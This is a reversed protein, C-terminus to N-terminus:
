FTQTYRAYVIRGFGNYLNFDYDRSTIFGQGIPPMKEGVNQAGVAFVGQWPTHYSFQVDHTVWTPAASDLSDAQQQDIANILHNIQWNGHTYNNNMTARAKPLGPNSILNRGKDVSTKHIYSTQLQHSFDGGFLGYKFKMSVDAGLVDLRGSNGFGVLCRIIQGTPARLCGLGPINPEGSIGANIIDQSTFARIRNTVALDYVDLNFEFWEKLHFTTGLYAHTSEESTLEPNAFSVQEFPASCGPDLGQYICSQPDRAFLTTTTPQQSILDMSPPRSNESYGMRFSLNQLPQYRLSLHSNIDDGHISYDDYRAALRLDLQNFLPVLTEFYVANVTRASGASNGASGLVQGAESQPDYQDLYKEKRYEAGIVTSIRGAPLDAWDFSAGMFYENIDFKSERYLTIRLANLVAESVAYPNALNYDGSEILQEAASRIVYNRGVDASRNDLHRVGYQWDVGSWHGDLMLTFDLQQNKVTTERNGLADFRHWWNVPQPSLGLSADYLPSNPNTPNNPSNASIPSGSVSNGPVPAYQGFSETQRFAVQTSLQWVDTIQHSAKAFLSKNEISAEDAAQSDFDYGCIQGSYSLNFGTEPFECGGPIATLDFNDFGGSLTTFNNGFISFQQHTWPLDKNLILERDNWSVGALLSSRDSRAGFIVSGEEREGGQSPISAEAGGLMIEVGQFESRTIINIVGSLADAGYIAAGGDRLVEIREIAAMPLLNLDDASGTSPSKGLRRGDILVLTRSSGLGKMSVISISQASSGSQPRFSGFINIPLNRIFDAANSEGSRLIDERTYITVPLATTVETQKLRTGTMSSYAKPNIDIANQVTTNAAAVNATGVFLGGLLLNKIHGLLINKRM